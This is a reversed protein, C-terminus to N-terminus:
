EIRTPFNNLKLLNLHDHRYNPYSHGSPNKFINTFIKTFYIWVCM